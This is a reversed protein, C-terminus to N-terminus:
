WDFTKSSEPPRRLKKLYERNPTAMIWTSLREDSVMSDFNLLDQSQIYSVNWEPRTQFLDHPKTMACSFDILLGARYNRARVDGPYIGVRRLHKLHRLMKNLYKATFTLDERVLEKVIARLPQRESTPREYEEDPRDWNVVDFKEHLEDEITAPLTLYGYCRVAITGNLEKEVLRGYARCENYFPDMHACIVSTPVIEREEELLHAEDDSPDFFRFQSRPSNDASSM